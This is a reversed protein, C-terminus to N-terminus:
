AHWKEIKMYHPYEIWPDARQDTEEDIVEMGQALLATVDCGRM